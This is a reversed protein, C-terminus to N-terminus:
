KSRWILVRSHSSAKNKGGFTEPLQSEDIDQLLTSQLKKDEVFIIKKKTNKDIFPYVMKWATMFIYPVHIIFLKGLREPYCDQLISLAALYGRIDSNAYGMRTPRACIKDLTFTVFRKFEEVTTPKHKAAFVVVIPRGSKDYGQMFLKNHSLDNPIEAPSIFGNPVFEKRWKLYKLLMASAKEVDLDRARLFRRIMFDDIDKASPDQAQVVARMIGIKSREIEERNESNLAEEQVDESESTGIQFSQWKQRLYSTM